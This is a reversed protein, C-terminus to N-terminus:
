AALTTGFYNDYSYRTGDCDPADFEARPQHTHIADADTCNFYGYHNLPDINNTDFPGDLFNNPDNPNAFLPDDFTVDCLYWEGDLLVANWKHAGGNAFGAVSTCNIGVRYCLMQFAEAYSECVGSNKLLVGCASWEDVVAQSLTINTLDDPLVWYAYRSNCILYDHIMKQKEVPALHVPITAVIQEVKNKLLADKAKISNILGVSPEVITNNVEDLTDTLGDGYSLYIYTEGLTISYGYYAGVYWKEPQDLQYANFVESIEDPTLTKSISFEYEFNRVAIDMATYALQQNRTLTTYYYRNNASVATHSTPQRDIFASFRQLLVALQARDSHVDPSLTVVGNVNAGTILGEANSWAVADLAWSSVKAADPYASLNASRYTTYSKYKAYRYFFTAAQERTLLGDPNFTTPSSGNVIGNLYAWEVADQYWNQTLDTFPTEVEMPSAGDLRWLVTAMMSRSITVDPAYKGDGIGGVLGQDAAWEISGKAWHGDIDTFPVTAASASVTIVTIMTLLTISFALIRGLKKM